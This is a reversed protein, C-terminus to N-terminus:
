LTLVIKGVSQGSEILQHAKAVEEIPFSTVPIPKIAQSSTTAILAEVGSQILDQEEFLFSLNFGLVGRNSSILEMPSFKPTQLLGLGAKIYNLRGGKKPLLTHAGYVILKGTPRLHRYSEKVSNAGNADFIVQYKDPAYLRAKEWLDEKSKDIIADPHFAQLYSKKHSAGIVGVTYHGALKCLQTLATGVGGAASHILVKSEKPIYAQQHLAHYATFFVAAFGAAEEMTFNDPLPIVQREPVCVESAYGEFLRFGIVKDGEKYRTVKDGVKSIFGSVEFGPTIPWGVYEKASEYVGLRVCIDAYNVGAAHTQIIVEDSKPTLNPHEELQLKDYGGAAHIVVKRM